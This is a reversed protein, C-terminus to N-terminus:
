LLGRRQLDEVAPRAASWPRSVRGEEVAAQIRQLRERQTESIKVRECTANFCHGCWAVAEAFGRATVWTSVTRTGNPCHSCPEQAADLLYRTQRSPLQLLVAEEV